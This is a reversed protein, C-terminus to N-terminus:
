FYVRGLEFPVPSSLAADQLIMELDGRGHWNNEVIWAAAFLADSKRKFWFGLAEDYDDCALYFGFVVQRAGGNGYCYSSSSGYFEIIDALGKCRRIEVGRTTAVLTTNEIGYGM